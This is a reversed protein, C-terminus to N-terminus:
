TSKSSSWAHKMNTQVSEMIQKGQKRTDPKDLSKGFRATVQENWGIGIKKLM